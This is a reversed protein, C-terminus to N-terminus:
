SSRARKALPDLRPKSLSSFHHRHFCRPPRTSIITDVSSSPATLFFFFEEAFTGRRSGIDTLKRIARPQSERMWFLLPPSRGRVACYNGSRNVAAEGCRTCSARGRERTVRIAALSTTLPQNFDLYTWKRPPLPPIETGRKGPGCPARFRLRPV